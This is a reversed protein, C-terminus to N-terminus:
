RNFYHILNKNTALGEGILVANCGLAHLEDLQDTQSYGSEAVILVDDGFSDRIQPVLKPVLSMDMNFTRLDRNNIGIMTLGDLDLIAELEAESHIELLVDLNLFDALNLLDQCQGKTLLAKILLIADAGNVKAEYLQIPDIVFDKRLIPLDDLDSLLKLYETKGQFFHPETLVSIASAGSEAFEEFLQVPDFDPRIVGKSPSAKKIEGILSLDPGELAARFRAPPRKALALQFQGLRGAEYLAMVDDQKKSVIDTLFTM